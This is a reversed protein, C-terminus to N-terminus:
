HPHQDHLDPLPAARRSHAVNTVAFLLAAVLVIAGGPALAWQRAAYLGAVVSAAGIVASVVMTARFSRAFTRGTAVPLVMLAAVLLV